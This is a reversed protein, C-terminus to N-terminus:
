RQGEDPLAPHLIARFDECLQDAAREAVPTLSVTSFFGHPLSPYHRATHPIHLRRMTEVFAANDRDLFDHGATGIVIPAVDGLHASLAPSVRPDAVLQERRDGLYWDTVDDGTTLALNTVPYLLLQGALDLGREAASLAAGLALNGGASDGAVAVKGPDGGPDAVHATVWDLATIADEHGAPFPDEPALRYDVNVVVAGVRNAIRRAHGEHTDLDGIAWGGGHLYVVTPVPRVQGRPRIVRAPLPNGDRPIEIDTISDVPLPIQAQFRVRLRVFHARQAPGPPLGFPQPVGSAAMLRELEVLERELPAEDM